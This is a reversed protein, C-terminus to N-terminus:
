SKRRTFTLYIMPLIAIIAIFSGWVAAPVGFLGDFPAALNKDKYNTIYLIKGIVNGLGALPVFMFNTLLYVAHSCIFADGAWLLYEDNRTIHILAVLVLTIAFVIMTTLSMDHDEFSNIVYGIGTLILIVTPIYHGWSTESLKILLCGGATMVLCVALVVTIGNTDINLFVAAMDIVKRIYHTYIHLPEVLLTGWLFLLAVFVAGSREDSRM